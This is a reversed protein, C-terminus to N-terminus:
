NLYLKKRREKKQFTEKILAFKQNGQKVKVCMSFQSTAQLLVAAANKSEPRDLTNMLSCLASNRIALLSSYFLTVLTHKQMRVMAATKMAHSIVVIVRGKYTQLVGTAPCQVIEGDPGFASSFPVNISGTIHGRSFSSDALNLLAAKLM